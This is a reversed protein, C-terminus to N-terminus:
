LKYINYHKKNKEKKHLVFATIKIYFKIIYYPNKGTLIFLYIFLYRVTHVLYSLSTGQQVWKHGM